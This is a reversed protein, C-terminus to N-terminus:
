FNRFVERLDRLVRELNMDKTAQFGGVNQRGGAKYGKYRLMKFIKRLDIERHFTAITGTVFKGNEVGLSIVIEYEGELKLLALRRAGNDVGM